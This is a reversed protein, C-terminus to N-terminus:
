NNAFLINMCDQSVGWCLDICESIKTIREAVITPSWCNFDHVKKFELFEQLNGCDTIINQSCTM